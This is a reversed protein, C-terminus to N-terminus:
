LSSATPTSQKLETVYDLLQDIMKEPLTPLLAELRPLAEAKPLRPILPAVWYCWYHTYATKKGYKELLEITANTAEPHGVRIMTALTQAAEYEKGALNDLRQRFLKALLANAGAHGPRALAQVLGLHGLQVALDLWQPDLNDREVLEKPSHYWDGRKHLLLEIIAERKMAAPDRSKKKENVYATLYPSFLTFVEAPKRCRCAAAFAQVLSDAPLMEHADILASQVGPSGDVMVAVLREIVDNGSPEGKITALQGRHEFMSLLLKETTADERGRLCGLLLRM